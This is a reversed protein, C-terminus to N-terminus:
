HTAVLPNFFDFKEVIEHIIGKKLAEEATLRVDYEDGAIRMEVLEEKSIGYAKMQLNIVQDFLITHQRLRVEMQRQMDQTSKYNPNFSMAHFLFRSHKTAKRKECAAMLTLSSSHCDGIVTCEVPFPLSKIFDHGSLASDVSGGGSDIILYAKKNQDELCMQFLAKEMDSVLNNEIRTNIPFIRRSIMTEWQQEKNM